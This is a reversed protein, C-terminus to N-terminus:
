RVARGDFGGWDFVVPELRVAGPALAKKILFIFNQSFRGVGLSSKRKKTELKAQNKGVKSPEKWSLCFSELKLSEIKFREM